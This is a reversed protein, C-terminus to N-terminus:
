KISRWRIATAGYTDWLWEHILPELANQYTNELIASWEKQISRPIKVDKPLDKGESDKPHWVLGQVSVPRMFDAEKLLPLLDARLEPNEHALRILKNRLSM